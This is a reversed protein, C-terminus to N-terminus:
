LKYGSLILREAVAILDFEGDITVTERKGTSADIRGIDRKAGIYAVPDDAELADFIYHALMTVTVSRAAEARSCSADSNTRNDAETM